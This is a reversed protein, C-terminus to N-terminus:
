LLNEKGLQELYVKTAFNDTTQGSGISINKNQLNRDEQDGKTCHTPNTFDDEHASESKHEEPKIHSDDDRKQSDPIPPLNMGLDQVVLIEAPVTLFDTWLGPAIESVIDCYFCDVQQDQQVAGGDAPRVAKVSSVRINQDSDMMQKLKEIFNPQQKKMWEHGEVNDIFKVVDGSLIGGGQFKQFNAEYLLNFTNAIM